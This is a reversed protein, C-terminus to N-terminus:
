FLHKIALAVQSRSNSLGTSQGGSLGSMYLFQYAGEFSTRQSFYSKFGLEAVGSGSTSGKQQVYTGAGLGVFPYVKAGESGFLKRYNASLLGGASQSGGGFTVNPAMSVGFFQTRTVFRGVGVQAVASGSYPKTNSVDVFGGIGVEKDGASQQALGAAQFSIACLAITMMYFGRHM